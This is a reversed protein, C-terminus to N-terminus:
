ASLECSRLVGRRISPTSSCCPLPAPFYSRVFRNSDTQTKKKLNSCLKPKIDCCIRLQAANVLRVKHMTVGDWLVHPLSVYSSVPAGAAGVPLPPPSHQPPHQLSLNSLSANRNPSPSSPVVHGQDAAANAQHQQEERQRNIQQQLKVNKEREELELQRREVEARETEMAQRFEMEETRHKDRDKKLGRLEELEKMQSSLKEDIRRREELIQEVAHQDM